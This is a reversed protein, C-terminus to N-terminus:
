PKSVRKYVIDNNNIKDECWSVEHTQEIEKFDVCDCDEGIQLYIYEPVNKIKKKM